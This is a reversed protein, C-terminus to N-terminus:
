RLGLVERACREGSRVAGELFGQYADSTHEGAFHLRGEPRAIASGFRTYQGPLFAAYSGKAWRDATWDDLWARGNFERRLGPVVRELAALTRRVVREPAPGHARPASYGAGVAGGSYVTILGPSGPQTLSSEWTDLNPRDTVLEGNWRDFRAPRNRFQLLVKANTGMGLREISERKRASLGVRDLDVRRLMTFPIALVVHRAIVAGRAGVFHLRYDGDGRRQVAELPMGMHLASEPLREALRRPLQDNGGRVHFREDSPDTETPGDGGRPGETLYLLDTATLREADLGFEQALYERMLRGLLSSDGGPVNDRLWSAADGADFQRARASAYNGNYGTRRAERRLRKLVKPYPRLVGPEHRLAGDLYLLSRGSREFARRDELELGLGRILRRTAAHDTDIFEGGHEGVQGDAFERASWCRGGVRDNRAEYVQVQVGKQHLRYACSLGALGAGVIVVPRRASGGIRSEAFSALTGGAVIAGGALAGRALLQRRSLLEEVM